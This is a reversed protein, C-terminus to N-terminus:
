ASNLFPRRPWQDVGLAGGSIFEEFGDDRAKAIAKRLFEIVKQNKPHAKDYGGLREPRHGTFSVAKMM